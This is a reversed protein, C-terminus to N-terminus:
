IIKQLSARFHLAEPHPIQTITLTSIGSRSRIALFHLIPICHVYLPYSHIQNDNSYHQRAKQQCSNDAPGIGSGIAQDAVLGEVFAFFFSYGIYRTIFQVTLKGTIGLPDIILNPFTSSNSPLFFM